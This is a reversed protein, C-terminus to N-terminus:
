KERRVMPGSISLGDGGLFKKQRGNVKITVSEIGEFQTATYVLQDIRTLLIEGNANEEIADNFDLVANRGVIQVNRIRLDDPIATLMGRKKETVSPGKILENLAGKLPQGPEGNRRVPLLSMRNSSENYRVLYIFFESRGEDKKDATKKVNNKKNNGTIEEEERKDKLAEKRKKEELDMNDKVYKKDKGVTDEKLAMSSEKMIRKGTNYNNILMIIIVTLLAMIALVFLPTKDTTKKRTRATRKGAASKAARPKVAKIGTKKAATKRKTGATRKGAM